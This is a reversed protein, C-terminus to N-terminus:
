YFHGSSYFLHFNLFTSVNQGRWHMVMATPGTNKTSNATSNIILTNNLLFSRKFRACCFLSTFAHLILSVWSVGLILFFYRIRKSHIVICLNIDCTCRVRVCCGCYVILSVDDVPSAYFASSPDVAAAITRIGKSHATQMQESFTTAVSCLEQYDQQLQAPIKLNLFTALTEFQEILDIMSLGYCNEQDQCDDGKLSVDLYIIQTTSNTAAALVLEVSETFNKFAWPSDAYGPVILYDPNLAVLLESDFSTCYGPIEACEPSLNSVSRLLAMEEPEPDATYTSSVDFPEEFDYDSGSTVYEGYTGM